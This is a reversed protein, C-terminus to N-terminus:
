ADEILDEFEGEFSSADLFAKAWSRADKRRLPTIKKGGCFSNVASSAYRTMAGGEGALFYKGSRPTRYLGAYWYGFDSVSGGTNYEGILVAKNTDYRLGNIIAKM